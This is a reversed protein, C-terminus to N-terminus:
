MGLRAKEALEAISKDKATAEVKRLIPEFHAKNPQRLFRHHALEVIVRCATEALEPDDLYGAAWDVTALTRVSAARSLALNKNESTDALKMAGQLMGLTEADPRKSPLSVVRIYARLAQSRYIKSSSQTALEWLQDAHEATPWNCLARVAAGSLEPRPSNILPQIRAYVASTGLRGLLPLVNAQFAAQDRDRHSNVLEVLVTARDSARPNKECIYGIAREVYDRQAGAPVDLYLALMRRLDTKDPDSIARLGEVAGEYVSPDTKRALKTLPDIAEYYKLKSLIEVIEDRLQVQQNL